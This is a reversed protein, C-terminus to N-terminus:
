ARLSSFSPKQQRIQKRLQPIRPNQKTMEHWFPEGHRLIKTHVLEHLLVYDILEWPLTMLFCNLTIEARHNCSGWKSRLHKITLNTYNYGYKNAVARLRSPLLAEAEAQLAKIAGKQAAQQMQPSSIPWSEPYIVRILNSNTRVSPRSATPSAIFDLRHSKGIAQGPALNVPEARHKLIWDRRREAFEAGLKYPVWMPMSVRIDGQSNITIRLNRTGRRKQLRVPGLGAIEVTRVAM